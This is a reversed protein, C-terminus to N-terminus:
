KGRASNRTTVGVIIDSIKRAEGTYDEAMKEIFKAQTEYLEAPNHCEALRSPMEFDQRLRDNVFNFLEHNVKGVCEFWNTYFDTFPELGQGQMYSPTEDSTNRKGPRAM